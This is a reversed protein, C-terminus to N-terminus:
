WKPLLTRRLPCHGVNHSGCLSVAVTIHVCLWVVVCAARVTITCWFAFCERWGDGDDIDDSDDCDDNEYDDKNGDDDDDDHTWVLRKPVDLYIASNTFVKFLPRFNEVLHEFRM